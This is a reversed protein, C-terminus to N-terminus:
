NKTKKIFTIDAKISLMDLLVIKFSQFTIKHEWKYM